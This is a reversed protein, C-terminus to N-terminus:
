HSENMFDKYKGEWTDASRMLKHIKIEAFYPLMKMMMPPIAAWDEARLLAALQDAYLSVWTWKHRFQEAKIWYDRKEWADVAEDISGDIERLAFIIAALMDRAEDDIEAKQSLHRLLEAGSRMHYTRRKGPNNPNTVRSM